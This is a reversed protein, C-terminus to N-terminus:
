ILPKISMLPECKISRIDASPNASYFGILSINTGAAVEVDVGENVGLGLGLVGSPQDASCAACASDVGDCPGKRPQLGMTPCSSADTIMVIEQIAQM